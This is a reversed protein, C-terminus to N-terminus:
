PRVKHIKRAIVRDVLENWDAGAISIANDGNLTDVIRVNKREHDLYIDICKVMDHKDGSIHYHEM